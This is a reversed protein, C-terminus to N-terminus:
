RDSCFSYSDDQLELFLTRKPIPTLQPAMEISSKVNFHFVHLPSVGTWNEDLAKILKKNQKKCVQVLTSFAKSFIADRM